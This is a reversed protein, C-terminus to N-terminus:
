KAVMSPESFYYDFPFLSWLKLSLNVSCHLLFIQPLVHLPDFAPMVAYGAKSSSWLLGAKESM